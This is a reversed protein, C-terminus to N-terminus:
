HNSYRGSEHYENGKGEDKQHNAVQDVSTECFSYVEFRLSSSLRMQGNCWNEVVTEQWTVM